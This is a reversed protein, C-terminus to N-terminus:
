RTGRTPVPDRADGRQERADGPAFQGQGAASAGAGGTARKEIEATVEAGLLLTSGLVGLSFPDTLFHLYQGLGWHLGATDNHLSLWLLQLLPAVFFVLFFLALPVALGMGYTTVDRSAPAAGM